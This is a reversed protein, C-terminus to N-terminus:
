QASVEIMDFDACYIWKDHIIDYFEPVDGFSSEFRSGSRVIPINRTVDSLALCIDTFSTNKSIVIIKNGSAPRPTDIASVSFDIGKIKSNLAKAIIEVVDFDERADNRIDKSHQEFYEPGAYVGSFKATKM